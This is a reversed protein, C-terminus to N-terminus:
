QVLIVSFYQIVVNSDVYVRQDEELKKVYYPLDKIGPPVEGEEKKKRKTHYARLISALDNLGDELFEFVKCLDLVQNM